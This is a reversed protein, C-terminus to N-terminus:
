KEPPASDPVMEIHRSAQGAGSGREELLSSPGRLIIPEALTHDGRHTPHNREVAVAQDPQIRMTPHAREHKGAVPKVVDRTPQGVVLDHLGVGVAVDVQRPGLQRHPPQAVTHMPLGGAWSEM